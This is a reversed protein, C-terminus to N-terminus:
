KPPVSFQYTVTQSGTFGDGICSPSTRVGELSGGTGPYGTVNPLWDITEPINAATGGCDDSSAVTTEVQGSASYAFGFLKQAASDDYIMLAGQDTLSGTTSKKFTCTKGNLASTKVSAYTYTGVSRYQRLTPDWVWGVDSVTHVTEHDIQGSKWTDTCEWLVDVNGTLPQPDGCAVVALRAERMITNESYDGLTRESWVFGQKLAVSAVATVPTIGAGTETMQNLFRVATVDKLESRASRVKAVTNQSYNPDSKAVQNTPNAACKELADLESLWKGSQKSLDMAGAVNSAASALAYIAGLNGVSLGQGKYYDLVSGITVDAGTKAVEGWAVGSGSVPGDSASQGAAAKGPASTKKLGALLVAPIGANPIFYGMDLRGTWEPGLTNAYTFAYISAGGASDKATEEPTPTHEQNPTFTLTVQRTAGNPYFLNYVFTNPDGNAVELKAAAFFRAVDAPVGKAVLDTAISDNVPFDNGQKAPGATDNCAVLAFALM